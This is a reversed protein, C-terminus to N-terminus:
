GRLHWEHDAHQSDATLAFILYEALGHGSRGVHGLELAIHNSNLCSGEPIMVNGGCFGPLALIVIDDARRVGQFRISSEVAFPFPSIVPLRKAFRQWLFLDPTENRHIGGFFLVLQFCIVGPSETVDSQWGSHLIPILGVEIVAFPRFSFGGDSLTDPIM